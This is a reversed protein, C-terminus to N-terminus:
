IHTSSHVFFFFFLLICAHVRMCRKDLARARSPQVPTHYPLRWSLSQSESMGSPRVRGNEVDILVRSNDVNRACATGLGDKGGGNKKEPNGDMWGDARMRGTDMSVNM